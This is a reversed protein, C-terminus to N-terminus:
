LNTTAGPGGSHAAGPAHLPLRVSFLTGEGEESAVDIRGGLKSVIGYTISLGLGTGKEGKTSFFPEFIHALVERSMGAGNDEVEVVIMNNELRTGLRIRGNDNVAGMANNLLNMFVQQLQGRDSEILPLGDTLEQTLTVNRFLAERELFGLVERLVENIDLEMSRVEMRRAFGLLRHTVSRCRDVAQLISDCLTEFRRAKPIDAMGPTALVLDKMLGSKEAIIALPNNIEHAVGAALRGISSLKQVHEIEQLAFQRSKETKELCRRTRVVFVSSLVLALAACGLGGLLLYKGRAYLTSFFDPQRGAIGAIFPFGHLPSETKLWGHELASDGKGWRVPTDNQGYVPALSSDLLVMGPVFGCHAFLADLDQASLEALAIRGARGPVDTAAFVFSRDPGNKRVAIATGMGLAQRFAKGAVRGAPLESTEYVRIRVEQSLGHLTPPDAQHHRAEAALVELVRTFGAAAQAAFLETRLNQEIRLGRRAQNVVALSGALTMVAIAALPLAIIVAAWHKPRFHPGSSFDPFASPINSM